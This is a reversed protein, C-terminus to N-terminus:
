LVVQYQDGKNQCSALQVIGHWFSRLDFQQQWVFPMQGKFFDNNYISEFLKRNITLLPLNKFYKLSLTMATASMPSMRARHCLPTATYSLLDITAVPSLTLCTMLLAPIPLSPRLHIADPNIRAAMLFIILSARCTM